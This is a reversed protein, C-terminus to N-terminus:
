QPQRPGGDGGGGGNGTCTSVTLNVATGRQVQAGGGPNQTQVSGPDICNNVESISGVILGAAQIAGEASAESESLVNPVTVPAPTVTLTFTATSVVNPASVVAIVSIPYTGAPTSTSTGLTLTTAANAPPNSSTVTATGGSPLGTIAFSTSLTALDASPALTITTTGSTGAVVTASTPRLTTVISSTPYTVAVGVSIDMGVAVVGALGPIAQPAPHVAEDGLGLQAEANYGWSWVQGGVIALTDLAGAVVSNVAGFNNNVRAPLNRNATDGLGLQGYQNNGWSMLIGPSQIIFSDDSGAAVQTVTSSSSIGLVPTPTLSQAPGSNGLGLEGSSNDGFGYVLHNNGVVLSHQIGTAIQLAPPLGGIQTPHARRSTDGTGLAGNTNDGWGFVAGDSRLMLAHTASAAIQVIGSIGSVQTPVPIDTICNDCINDGGVLDEGWEWVTGDWKVALSFPGGVAVQRVNTLNPIQIPNPYYIPGNFGQGLVEKRTSDGWGWVTGDNALALIHSASSAIQTFRVDPGAYPAPTLSTDNIAGGNGLDGYSEAGWTYVSGNTAAAAPSAGIWLGTGVMAVAAAVAIAGRRNLISM